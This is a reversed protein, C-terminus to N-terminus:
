RRDTGTPCGVGYVDYTRAGAESAVALWAGMAVVLVGILGRM